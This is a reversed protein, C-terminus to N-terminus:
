PMVRVFDLLANRAVAVHWYARCSPCFNEVVRCGESYFFVPRGENDRTNEHQQLCVASQANMRTCVFVKADNLLALLANLQGEAEKVKADM